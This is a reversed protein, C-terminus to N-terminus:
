PEEKELGLRLLSSPNCQDGLSDTAPQYSLLPRRGFYITLPLMLTSVVATPQGKADTSRVLMQTSRVPLPIGLGTVTVSRSRLITGPARAEFGAPAAYFADDDPSPI